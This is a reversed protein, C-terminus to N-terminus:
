SSLVSRVADVIDAVTPVVAAELPESMPIPCDKGSLMIPPADLYDFGPM